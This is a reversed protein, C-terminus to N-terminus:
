RVGPQPLSEIWRLAAACIARPATTDSTQLPGGYERALPHNRRPAFEVVWDIVSSYEMGFSMKYDAYPGDDSLIHEVVRWAAGMDASYRPVDVLTYRGDEEAAYYDWEGAPVDQIAMDPPLLWRQEGRWSSVDGHNGTLWRWGMVREAIELDLERGANNM